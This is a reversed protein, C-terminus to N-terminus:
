AKILGDVFLCMTGFCNNRGFYVTDISPDFYTFRSPPHHGEPRNDFNWLQYRRLIEDWTDRCIPDRLGLPARSSVKTARYGHNKDVPHTPDWEIEIIRGLQPDFYIHWIKRRLELSLRPFYHFRALTLDLSIGLVLRVEASTTDAVLEPFPLDDSAM